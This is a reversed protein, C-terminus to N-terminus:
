SDANDLGTKWDHRRLSTHVYTSYLQVHVGFRPVSALTGCRAACLVQMHWRCRLGVRLRGIASRCCDLLSRDRLRCSVSESTFLSAFCNGFEEKNGNCRRGELCRTARKFVIPCSRGSLGGSLLCGRPEIFQIGDGQGRGRPRDM